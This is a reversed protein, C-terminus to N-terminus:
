EASTRLSKEKKMALYKAKIDEPVDLDLDIFNEMIYDELKQFEDNQNPDAGLVYLSIGLEKARQERRDTFERLEDSIKIPSKYTSKPKPMDVLNVM